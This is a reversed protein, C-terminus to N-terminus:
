DLFDVHSCRDLSLDGKLLANIVHFFNGGYVPEVRVNEVVSKREMCFEVHFNECSCGGGEGRTM